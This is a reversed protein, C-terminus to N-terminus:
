SPEMSAGVRCEYVAVFGLKPWVACAKYDRRCRVRIGSFKNRTVIKLKEFLVKAVGRGWHSQRVCLHVIYALGKKVSVAYLLYGIVFQKQDLAALLQNDRAYKIFAGKPLFGLTDANEKGLKMVKELHISKESVFVIKM